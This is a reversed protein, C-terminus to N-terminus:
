QKTFSRSQAGYGANTLAWSYGGAMTAVTSKFPGVASDQQPIQISSGSPNIGIVVDTNGVAGGPNTITYVGPAVKKWVAFTEFGARKYSGSYDNAAADPKTDYVVVYRPSTASFGDANAASYNLTYVGAAGTNVAGDIKVDIAADGVSAEAGPDTFTGGKAVYMYKDGKVQLIPFVTVKSIGVMGEPYDFSDKKCSFLSMSLLGIAIINLYRKM